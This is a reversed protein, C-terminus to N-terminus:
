EAVEKLLDGLEERTLTRPNSQLCPDAMAASILAERHQELAEPEIGAERLTAPLHLQRRLSILRRRLARLALGETAGELACARALHAYQGPCAASNCDLVAPLLIGGLRGHPVHFVGGLAHALAHGVGLGANDFAMGAMTAAVHLAGRCAAEGAYSRPLKELLVACADTALADSLPSHGKAAVAEVCHTVADMGADAILAPPLKELLSDDLIACDPRLAPDVLPKKVGDLTLISFSTVESGTGSTTPVAIFLPRQEAAALIGKACDMSSGGGLAIVIEPRVRQLLAAGEAVLEAAPDPQVRDFLVVEAGLVRRGIAAASGNQSFFSDTVVLVTKASLTNLHELANKGFYLATSCSFQQM